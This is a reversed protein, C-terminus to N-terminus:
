EAVHGGEEVLGLLLDLYNQLDYIRGVIPESRNDEAGGRVFANVADFHKTAFIMLVVEPALGLAAGTRKFNALRDADSAYDESKKDCMKFRTWTHRHRMQKFTPNTM